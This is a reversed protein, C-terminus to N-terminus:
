ETAHKLWVNPPRAAHQFRLLLSSTRHACENNNQPDPDDSVTVDSWVSTILEKKGVVRDAYRLLYLLVDATRRRLTIVGAPGGLSQRALDFTFHGFRLASGESM